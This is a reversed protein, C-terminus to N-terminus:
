RGLAQMQREVFAQLEQSLAGSARAKQFAELAEGNRKDAQLSIGLGMWWIGNAPAGRLAAQYEAAADRHRGQRQLAGALFAHYDPDNGAYPLTRMLTDIGSGGREIQLRALLMAPRPQRPDQALGLQLQRMADEPRKAEILLGVLTQRAADHGPDIRLAAELAAVTEGLRGEQLSALARRYESEARQSTSDQRGQVAGRERAPSPRGALVGAAQARRAERNQLELMLANRVARAEAGDPEMSAVSKAPAAPAAVAATKGAAPAAGDDIGRRAVPPSTRAAPEEMVRAARASVTRPAADADARAAPRPDAPPDAPAERKPMAAAATPTATAVATSLSGPQAELVAPAAAGGAADRAPAGVAGGDGAPSTTIVSSMGQGPRLRGPAPKAGANAALVAPAPASGDQVAHLRGLAFWVLATGACAGAVAAAITRPSPRVARRPPAVPKVQAPFAEAAPTGRADLDQLMKNILSM